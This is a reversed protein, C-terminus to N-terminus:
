RAMVRRLSVLLIFNHRRPQHFVLRRTVAAIQPSARTRQSPERVLRRYVNDVILEQKADPGRDLAVDSGSNHLV